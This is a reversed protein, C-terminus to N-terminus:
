SSSQLRQEVCSMVLMKSYIKVKRHSEQRKNLRFLFNLIGYKESFELKYLMQKRKHFCRKLTKSHCLNVHHKQAVWFTKNQEPCGTYIKQQHFNLIPWIYIKCHYQYRPNYRNLFPHDTIPWIIENYSQM